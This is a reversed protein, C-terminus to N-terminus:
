VYQVDFLCDAAGLTLTNQTTSNCIVIGHEFFRGVSGWYAGVPSAAAVNLALRPIKGNAPVAVADIVLIFQAAVNTSTVTFGYLRCTGTRAVISSALGPSYANYPLQYPPPFWVGGGSQEQELFQEASTTV